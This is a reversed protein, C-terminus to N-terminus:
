NLAIERRSKISFNVTNKEISVNQILGLRGNNRQWADLIIGAVISWPLFSEYSISFNGDNIKTSSLRALGNSEIRTAFWSVFQEETDLLFRQSDNSSAMCAAECVINDVIKVDNSLEILPDDMDNISIEFLTNYFEQMMETSLVCLSVGDISPWGTKDDIHIDFDKEADDYKREIPKTMPVNIPEFTVSANTGGDDRWQYRLSEGIISQIYSCIEGVEISVMLPNEIHFSQPWNISTVIGRGNNIRSVAWKEFSDITRNKNLFSLRSKSPKWKAYDLNMAYSLSSHALRRGLTTQMSSELNDILHIIWEHKCLWVQDIDRHILEGFKTYYLSECLPHNNHNDDISNTTIPMNDNRLQVEASNLM